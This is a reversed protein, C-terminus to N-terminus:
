FWQKQQAIYLNYFEQDSKTLYIIGEILGIVGMVATTLGCTLAGGVLSILLYTVGASTYGLIFKHIGFGGLLIGCLGATLKKSAVDSQNYAPPYGAPQYGGYAVPAPGYGAPPYGAPGYGAPGYGAPGPAAPPAYYGGANPMGGPMPGPAAAYPAPGAAPAAPATPAAPFLVAQLAPVRDAREWQSM